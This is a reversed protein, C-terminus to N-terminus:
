GRTSRTRPTSASPSSAATRSGSSSSRSRTPPGRPSACDRRTRRPWTSRWVAAALPARGRSPLRRGDCRAGRGAHPTGTRRRAGPRGRALLRGRRVRRRARRHQTRDDRRARVGWQMWLQTLAYEIAFLAPQTIATQTLATQAAEADRAPPYLLTRLDLSLRPALLEACRDLVARFAPEHTYLGRAMNVYQAGQGSFMFAVARERPTGAAGIIRSGDSAALAAVLDEADTYVAACRHEKARRGVQLTYAVDAADMGPTVTLQEALTASMTQLASPSRASLVLLHHRRPDDGGEVAPAEELVLHVNTGGIGFGSVGARRPGKDYAWPMLERNVFFPSNAFDIAPNLTDCNLSPPIERHELALITKILSAVGAAPDLHGVNTKVSGVACFGKKTTSARFAKTLAGIEVPDGVSTGTGHAEVYTVTDARVGAHAHARAIVDVQGDLSPAAFSGKAAGDNNVAWGKVVAYIPDGDALADALRRLVVVGVGNGFVVGAANEDFVRCHGDPSFIGGPEFYYGSKQPVRVCVGGALAMDCQRSLLHDGAVAVALLSTSCATQISFSPGKLDLKYSVRTTLYDKDNGIHVQLYGLLAMFEPNSQLHDLYSSMACGGYVGVLGPFTAPDYGADELAHWATELFLRHQPDLSEAERPSFGFFPADFLDVDELVSGASVYAPDDFAAPDVGAAQLEGRSFPTISEVGHRLNEWFREVSPAGPFRGSMGIIALSNDTRSTRRAM